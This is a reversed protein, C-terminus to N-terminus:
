RANGCPQVEDADFTALWETNGDSGVREVIYGHGSGSKCVMVVVGSEGITPPRCGSADIYDASPRKMRTIRVTSLETIPENMGLSWYASRVRASSCERVTCSLPDDHRRRFGDIRENEDQSRSHHENFTLAAFSVDRDMAATQSRTSHREKVISRSALRRPVPEAPTDNPWARTRARAVHLAMCCLYPPARVLTRITRGFHPCPRANPRHTHNPSRPFGDSLALFTPDTTNSRPQRPQVVRRRTQRHNLRASHIRKTAGFPRASQLWPHLAASGTSHPAFPAAGVPRLSSANASHRLGVREAGRRPSDRLFVQCVGRRCPAPRVDVLRKPTRYLRGNTEPV